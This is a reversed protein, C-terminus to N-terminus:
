AKSTSRPRPRGRLTLSPVVGCACAPLFNYQLRSRSWDEDEAEDTGGGEKGETVEEAAGEEVPGEGARRKRRSVGSRRLGKNERVDEGESGSGGDGGACDHNPSPSPSCGCRGCAFAYTGPFALFAVSAPRFFLGHPRPFLAFFLCSACVDLDLGVICQELSSGKAGKKTKEAGATKVLQSKFTSFLTKPVVWLV